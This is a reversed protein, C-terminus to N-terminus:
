RKRGVFLGYGLKRMVDPPWNFQEKIAQRIGPQALLEDTTAFGGPHKTVGVLAQLDLFAVPQYAPKESTM